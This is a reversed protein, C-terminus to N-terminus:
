IGESYEIREDVPLDDNIIKAAWILAAVGDDNLDNDEDEDLDEALSLLREREQKLWDIRASVIAASIVDELSSEGLLMVDRAVQTYKDNTQSGEEM